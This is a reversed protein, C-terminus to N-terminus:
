ESENWSRAMFRAEGGYLVKELNRQQAQPSKLAALYRVIEKQRSPPLRDFGARAAPNRQLAASFWSPPEAPGGRYGDDFTVAVEVVDGVDARAAKRVGGQLYLFFSGDGAPMMNIRWPVDPKGDIQVSVPMPRRWGPKLAAAQEASVLVYPNIGRIEIPARFRLKPGQM